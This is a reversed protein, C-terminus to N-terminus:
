HHGRALLVQVLESGGILLALLEVELYGHEWVAATTCRASVRCFLGVHTTYMSMSCHCGHKM